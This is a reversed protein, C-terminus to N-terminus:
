LLEYRPNLFVLRGQPGTPAGRGSVVVRKGPTLGAIHRRGTFMVTLAGTGDNMTVELWPSGQHPVIRVSSVEGVAAAENRPRLEAIPTVGPLSRCFQRLRDADLEGVPTRLRQLAKRLAM